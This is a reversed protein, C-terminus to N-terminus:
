MILGYSVGLVFDLVATQLANNSNREFRVSRLCFLWVLRIVWRVMAYDLRVVRSKGRSSPVQM